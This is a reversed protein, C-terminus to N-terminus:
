GQEQGVCYIVLDKGVVLSAYDFCM